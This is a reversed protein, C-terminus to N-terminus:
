QDTAGRPNERVDGVSRQASWSTVGIAKRIRHRALGLMADCVGKLESVLAIDVDRFINETLKVVEAV